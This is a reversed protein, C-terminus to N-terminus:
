HSSRVCLGLFREIKLFKKVSSTIKLINNTINFYIGLCLFFYSSSYFIKIFSIPNNGWEWEADTFNKRKEIGTRRTQTTQKKKKQILKM